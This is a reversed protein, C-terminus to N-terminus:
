VDNFGHHRLIRVLDHYRYLEQARATSKFGADDNDNLIFPLKGAPLRRILDQYQELTIQSNESIPAVTAIGTFKRMVAADRPGSCQIINPEFSRLWWSGYLDAEMEVNSRWKNEKDKLPRYV